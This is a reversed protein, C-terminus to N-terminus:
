VALWPSFPSLAMGVTLLGMSIAISGRSGLLAILPPAYLASFFAGVGWGGNLWGYGKAGAHFVHDSLPPTVVVGTMMAGLFLAWSTGLFIVSRHDRLFVLGESMERVFRQVATEAAELDQKLEQTRPV